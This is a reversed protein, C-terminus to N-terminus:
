TLARAWNGGGVSPLINGNADADAEAGYGTAAALIDGNADADAEAGWVYGVTNNIQLGLYVGAPKADGMTSIIVQDTPSGDDIGAGIATLEFTAPYLDTSVVSDALTLLLFTSILQEATGSQTSLGSAKGLLASAYDVDSQGPERELDLITGLNDLQVGEATSLAQKNILDDFTDEIRQISTILAADLKGINTSGQTFSPNRATAREVHNTIKPPVPLPM